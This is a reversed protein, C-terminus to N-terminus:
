VPWFYNTKPEEKWGFLSYYKYDKRLLNARHSSHVRNDGLWTPYLINQPLPYYEMTNNYGRRTWEDIMINHYLKLADTFGTWMRRAPHNHWGVKVDPNGELKKISNVLQMAELRQKGLRKYDLIQASKDFESYPLFTQM